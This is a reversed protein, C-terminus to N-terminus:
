FGREKYRKRIFSTINQPMYSKGLKTKMQETVVQFTNGAMSSRLNVSSMSKAMGDSTNLDGPIYCVGLWPNLLLEGRNSGLFGDLRKEHTVTNMSAMHYVADSNDNRVYTNISCGVNGFLLEALMEKIPRSTDFDYFPAQIEGRM